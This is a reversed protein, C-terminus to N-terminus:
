KNKEKVDKKLNQVTYNIQSYIEKENITEKVINYSDYTKKSEGTSDDVVMKYKDIDDPYPIYYDMKEKLTDVYYKGNIKMKNREYEGLFRDFDKDESNPLSNIYQMSFESERYTTNIAEASTIIFSTSISIACLISTFKKLLKVKLNM